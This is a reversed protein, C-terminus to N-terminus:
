RNYPMYWKILREDGKQLVATGRSKRIFKATRKIM